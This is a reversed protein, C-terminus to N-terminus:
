CTRTLIIIANRKWRTCEDPTIKPKPNNAGCIGALFSAYERETVRVPANHHQHYIRACEHWGSSCINTFNLNKPGAHFHVRGADSVFGHFRAKEVVTGLEWNTWRDPQPLFCRAPGESDSGRPLVIGTAHPDHVILPRLVRVRFLAILLQHIMLRDNIIEDCADKSNVGLSSNM